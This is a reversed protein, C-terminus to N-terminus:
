NIDAQANGLFPYCSDKHMCQIDVGQGLIPKSKPLRLEPLVLIKYQHVEGEIGM